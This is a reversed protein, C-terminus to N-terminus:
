RGCRVWEIGALKATAASLERGAWEGAHVTWLVDSGDAGPGVLAVAHGVLEGLPVGVATGMVYGSAAVKASPDDFRIRTKDPLAAVRLVALRCPSFTQYARAPARVDDHAYPTWPARELWARFTAPEAGARGFSPGHLALTAALYEPPTAALVARMDLPATDM